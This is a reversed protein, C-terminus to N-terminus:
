LDEVIEPHSSFLINKLLPCNLKLKNTIEEKMYDLNSFMVVSRNSIIKYIKLKEIIDMKSIIVINTGTLNISSILKDLNLWNTKRKRGTTTGVEKGLKSLLDLSDIDTIPILFNPDKGVRTDYIKTAGYINRIKQPPFGLSCASYPLTTSSTIYPYSGYNIDLWIGQAGECLVKGELKEDWIFSELESFEDARKGIRAFKDRACPAIGRGTSGNSEIYKKVDELVHEPSVIHTKPSIKVLRTDFGKGELYNLEQFFHEINLYCDPGIISTVNYFIGSPVIHTHYEKGNKYVTHGANSGGNWRCVFDYPYNKVLHTVIKGKAEDGWALGCCVDVYELVM